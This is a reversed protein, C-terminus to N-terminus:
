CFCVILNNFLDADNSRTFELESAVFWLGACILLTM